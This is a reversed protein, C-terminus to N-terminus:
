RPLSAFRLRMSPIKFLGQFLPNKPRNKHHKCPMPAKRIIRGKRICEYSLQISRM